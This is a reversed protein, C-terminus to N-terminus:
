VCRGDKTAALLYFGGFVGAILFTLPKTGHNFIQCYLHIVISTTAPPLTGIPTGIKPVTYWIEDSKFTDQLFSV